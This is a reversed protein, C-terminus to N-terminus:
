TTLPPKTMVYVGRGIKYGRGIEVFGAKQVGRISPFNAENVIM